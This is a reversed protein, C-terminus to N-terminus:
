ADDDDRGDLAFFDGAVQKLILAELRGLDFLSYTLAQEIAAIFPGSPYTRKMELLRKLGRRGWGNGRHKLAAAYRDLSPHHGTLLKEENATGRNERVPITHHGPLTSKGDRQGILRAHVAITAERKGIRVEAPLKYVTVSQGIFREPVSYRNTDVSVFGHLNVVRDLLEYVPPLADPLPQLHPQEIVYAADPSMGLAQKPKANAVTRCWAVAQRNLDDYDAFSRGALFNGEVYAFPREIRGKRDPNGVRHARFRFGLTRAFALMEPAIVADAGSGTALIVSTNDIICVPCSGGMFRVAELLFTKAEFRTFRPYYQVFLRRSYALVLGACQALVTKGGIVVRHPSTDHQMEQGPLFDYEGARRPPSRLGAERIWRTLTSYAVDIDDDALLEQVRVVNGRAREFAVKLRALTEADCPPPANTDAPETTQLIGRVTNRSLGLLRSIERRGKGQAALTRVTNRIELATKAM